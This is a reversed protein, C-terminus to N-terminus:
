YQALVHASIGDLERHYGPLTREAKVYAGGIGITIVTNKAVTFFLAITDATRAIRGASVVSEEAVARLTAILCVIHAGV